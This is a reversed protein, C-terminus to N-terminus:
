APGTAVGAARRLCGDVDTAHYVRESAAIGDLFMAYGAAMRLATVPRLLEVAREPACGPVAARWRACWQELVPRASAADLGETLRLVDFAPHGVFSDGWDIFVNRGAHARVNGPHLDGHALTDPLGCARVGDLRRTLGALLEGAVSTDYGALRSRIWGTLTQGRLDPVGAAVLEAVDPVAREQVPHFDAAMTLREEVPAGYRDEGPVHDLLMRGDGDEALLTPTRGPTVRDLWRLVAAEHRFFVPVQKLWATGGPGDLRWVASLNWTRQQTVTEIPRGIRRLEEAAWALSRAPGGPEAYPARLPDASLDVRAPVLRTAPLEDVQGLYTVTGGVAGPGDGGVLRLVTVDVGYRRRAGAVVPAVEQWWPSPVDFPPLAGLPAGVADVLALIVTRSM